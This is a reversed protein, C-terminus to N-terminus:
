RALVQAVQRRAESTKFRLGKRLLLQSLHITLTGLPRATPEREDSIQRLAMRALARNAPDACLEARLREPLPLGFLRSAVLLAQAPARGAGQRVALRYLREAEAGDSGILGVLDAVWKLRFWASSAGHVCLYAFLDERALTPLSVGPLVGVEQRPSAMGIAPILDPHDTLRTHPELTIGARNRWPVDKAHRHMREYAASGVEMDAADLSYGLTALIGAVAPLSSPEVLFDIDSSMKVTADGYALQSLTLGKVFLVPVDADHFAALLRRCENAARLNAQATRTADSSLDAVIAAPVTAHHRHLARAALAEM